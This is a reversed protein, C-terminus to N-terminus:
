RSLPAGKVLAYGGHASPLDPLEGIAVSVAGTTGPTRVVSVAESALHGKAVTVTTAGGALRGNTVVVPLM